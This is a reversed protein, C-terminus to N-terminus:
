AMFYKLSLCQVLPQPFDMGQLDGVFIYMGGLPNRASLVLDGNFISMPSIVSKINPSDICGPHAINDFLSKAIKQEQVLNDNYKVIENKQEQITRHLVNMRNFSRLKANIITKNYPKSLFDDGGCDLCEALDQDDTLSTLFIVPTFKENYSEKIVKAAEKGNMVPMMVDLLVIDPDFSEFIEVAEEGNLATRVIHGEKKLMKSLILLDTTSDDAVLIKLSTNM